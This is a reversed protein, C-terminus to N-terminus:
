TCKPLLIEIAVPFLQGEGRLAYRKPLIRQLVRDRERALEGRLEEFHATRRALEERRREISRELDEVQNKADFLQGQDVENRLEAIERELKDMTSQEILRSLEGQRQQFRDQERKVAVAKERELSSRLDRTLNEAECSLLSKVEGLVNEWVDRAESVQEPASVSSDTSRLAAAPVHPLPAALKGRQIPIRITRVWQHFSERLDNVGLEEVTLLL